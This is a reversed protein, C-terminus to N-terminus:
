RRGSMAAALQHDIDRGFLAVLDAPRAVDPVRVTILDFPAAPWIM